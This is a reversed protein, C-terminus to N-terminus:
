PARERTAAQAIGAADKDAARDGFRVGADELTILAKM